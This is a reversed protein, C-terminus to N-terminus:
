ELFFKYPLNCSLVDTVLNILTNAFLEGENQMHKILLKYLINNKKALDANVTKIMANPANENELGHQVSGRTNIYARKYISTDRGKAEFLDKDSVEYIQLLLGLSLGALLPHIIHGDQIIDLKLFKDEILYKNGAPWQLNWNPSNSSIDKLTELITEGCCNDLIKM